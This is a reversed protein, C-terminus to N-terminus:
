GARLLADRLDKRGAAATERLLARSTSARSCRRSRESPFLGTVNAGDAPFTGEAVQMGVDFRDPCARYTAVGSTPSRWACWRELLRDPVGTQRQWRTGRPQPAVILLDTAGADLAQQWPVPAALGGDLARRGAAVPARGYLVPLATTARLVELLDPQHQDVVVPDGTDLDTIVTLVPAPHARLTELDLALRVTCVHDVLWDIDMVKWPRLPNIFRRGSLLETYALVAQEAQGAALYCGNIAGASSGVVLDFHRQLGSTALQALTGAQWTARMGGGPLVLALTRNDASGAARAALLDFADM